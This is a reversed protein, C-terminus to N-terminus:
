QQNELVQLEELEGWQQLILAAKDNQHEMVV